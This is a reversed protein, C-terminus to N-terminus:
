LFEQLLRWYRASAGISNHTTDALVEVKVSAQPALRLAAVLAETHTRPIVEDHEAVFVLTPVRIGPARSVSDYKDQLLQGVPFLPFNRKALREISDYPTILVLKDLKRSSALFVAVGSGLSRGIVTVQRHRAAAFDHVALADQFLAAESPKGSSGGFGRYNVLYVTHDAFATAAFQPMNQAVDEANGGFYIIAKDGSGVRWIKLTQEGTQLRIAPLTPAHFEPTPYYLFARQYAYLYGCGGAYLAIVLVILFAAFKIM